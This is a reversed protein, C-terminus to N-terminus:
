VSWLRKTEMMCFKFLLKKLQRLLPLITTCSKLALPVTAECELRKVGPSFAAPLWETPPENPRPVPRSVGSLPCM